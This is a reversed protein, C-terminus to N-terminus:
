ESLHGASIVFARREQCRNDSLAHYARQTETQEVVYGASTVVSRPM